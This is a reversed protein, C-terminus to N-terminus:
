KLSSSASSDWCSLYHRWQSIFVRRSIFASILRRTAPRSSQKTNSCGIRSSLQNGKARQECSMLMGGAWKMSWWRFLQQRVCVPERSHCTAMRITWWTSTESLLHSISVGSKSFLLFMLFLLVFYRGNCPETAILLYWKWTTTTTTPWNFWLM